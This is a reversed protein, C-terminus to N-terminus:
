SNHLAAKLKEYSFIPDSCSCIKPAMHREFSFQKSFVGLYFALKDESNDIVDAIKLFFAKRDRQEHVKILMHM